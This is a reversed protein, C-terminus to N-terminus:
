ETADKKNKGKYEVCLMTLDDFQTTDKSFEDVDERIGRLIGEPSQDEIDNIRSELREM